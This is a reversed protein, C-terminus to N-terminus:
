AADEDIAQQLEAWSDRACALVYAQPDNVKGGARNLLRLVLRVLREHTIERDTAQAIAAQVRTPDRIGLGALVADRATTADPDRDAVQARAPLRPTIEDFEHADRQARLRRMREAAKARRQKVDVAAPQYEEWDHFAWGRELPVWFGADVLEAALKPTGGIMPLAAKPVFGDTLQQSAWSGARVWLATAGASLRLTKPHSWWGDDVKFWAM